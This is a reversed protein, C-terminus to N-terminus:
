EVIVRRSAIFDEVVEDSPIALTEYAKMALLRIRPDVQAWFAESTGDHEALAFMEERDGVLGKVRVISRRTFEVGMQSTDKKLSLMAHKEQRPTLRTMYIARISGYEKTVESWLGDRDPILFEDVRTHRPASDTFPGQSTPAPPPAAQAQNRANGAM